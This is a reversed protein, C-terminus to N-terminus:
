TIGLYVMVIVDDKWYSWVELVLVIVMIVYSFLSAEWHLISALSCEWKAKGFELGEKLSRRMIHLIIPSKGEWQPAPITDDSAWWVFPKRFWPVEAGACQRHCCGQAPPDWLGEAVWATAHSVFLSLAECWPWCDCTCCLLRAHGWNIQKQGEMWLVWLCHTQSDRCPFAPSVCTKDKNEFGFYFMNEAIRVIRQKICGVGQNFQWRM